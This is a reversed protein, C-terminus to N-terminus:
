ARHKSRHWTKTWGPHTQMYAFFVSEGKKKGYEFRFKNEIKKGTKTLPMKQESKSLNIHAERKYIIM